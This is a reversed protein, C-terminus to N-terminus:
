GLLLSRAPKPRQSVKRRPASSVAGVLLTAALTLRGLAVMRRGFERHFSVIYYWTGFPFSSGTQRAAARGGGVSQGGGRCGRLFPYLDWDVALGDFQRNSASILPEAFDEGRSESTMSKMHM